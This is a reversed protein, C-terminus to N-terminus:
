RSELMVDLSPVKSIGKVYPADTQLEGQVQVEAEGVDM